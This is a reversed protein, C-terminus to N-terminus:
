DDASGLEQWALEIQELNPMQHHWDKSNQMFSVGRGKITDAILCLPKSTNGKSKAMELAELLQHFNHGNLRQTEWGFAGFRTEIPEISAYNETAETAGFGNRDIIVTLNGLSRHGAFMAAEWISGEHCEADGLVVYHKRSLNKLQASLAMGAAVGLGHGLSGTCTEIGPIEIDPHGALMSGDKGYRNLETKSFYGLDSLISYLTLCSHGKSLIFRDRLEWKPKEPKFELINGYYLAVGIEVWSFAGPIHGKGANVATKFITRRLEEAKRQLFKQDQNHRNLMGM